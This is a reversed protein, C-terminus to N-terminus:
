GRSLLLRLSLNLEPNALRSIYYCTIMRSHHSSDQVYSTLRGDEGCLVLLGKGEVARKKPKHFDHSKTLSNQWSFTISSVQCKLHKIGTKKLNAGQKKGTKKPKWTTQQKKPCLDLWVRFSGAWGIMWGFVLVGMSGNWPDNSAM